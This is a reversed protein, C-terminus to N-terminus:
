NSEKILKKVWLDFVEKGFKGSCEPHCQFGIIPKTKHKIMNIIGYSEVLVEYDKPCKEIHSIHDYFMKGKKNSIRFNRLGKRRKSLRLLNVGEVFALLQLGMCIGIVPKKTRKFFEKEKKVCDEKRLNLTGGSLVVFDFKDLKSIDLKKHDIITPNYKQLFKNLKKVFGKHHNIIACKM